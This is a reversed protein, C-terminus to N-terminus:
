FLSNDVVVAAAVGAVAAAVAVEAAGAGGGLLPSPKKIKRSKETSFM